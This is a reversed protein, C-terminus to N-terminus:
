QPRTNRQSPPWIPCFKVEVTAIAGALWIAARRAGSRDGDSAIGPDAMRVFTPAWFAFPPTIGREMLNGTIRLATSSSRGTVALFWDFCIENATRVSGVDVRVSLSFSM